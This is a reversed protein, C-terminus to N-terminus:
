SVELKPGLKSIEYIDEERNELKNYNLNEFFGWFM